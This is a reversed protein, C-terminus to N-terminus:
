ESWYEQKSFEMFFPSQHAIDWTTVFVVSELCIFLCITWSCKWIERSHSPPPRCTFSLILYFHPWVVKLLFIMPESEPCKSNSAFGCLCNWCNTFMHKFNVLTFRHNSTIPINTYNCWTLLHSYVHHSSSERSFVVYLYSFSFLFQESPSLSPVMPFIWPSYLFHLAVSALPEVM